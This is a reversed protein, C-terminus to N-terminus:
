PAGSDTSRQRQQRRRRQFATSSHRAAPRTNMTRANAGCCIPDPSTAPRRTSTQPMTSVHRCLPRNEARHELLEVAGGADEIELGADPLDERVGLTLDGHRAGDLHVVALDFDEGPVADLVVDREARRLAADSIVRAHREVFHRRQRRPHRPFAGDRVDREAAALAADDAIRRAHRPALQLRQRATVDGFDDVGDPRLLVHRRGVDVGVILDHRPDHVGVAHVDAVGRRGHDRALRDLSPPDSPRRSAVPRPTIIQVRSDAFCRPKSM